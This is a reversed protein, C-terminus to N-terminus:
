FCAPCSVADAVVGAPGMVPGGGAGGAGPADGGCGGGVADALLVRAGSDELVQAMRAAPWALDVPLYAAGTRAVALLATVLEASREMAVAVVTEPGAGRAALLGALRGAAADLAGYSVMADGCVVAVADPCRAAQAGFLGAVTVAPVSVATDNWEDLVQARGAADLVQVRGVRVMPDAAVAALVRVLRETILAASAPDFLDAAVIVAGGLGAPGGHEDFAEVLSVDLDFRATPLGAAVGGPLGGARLGPLSLTAPATNQGGWGGRGAGAWGGWCSSSRRVGRCM